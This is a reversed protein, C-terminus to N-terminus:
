LSHKEIGSIFGFIETQPTLIPLSIDNTLLLRLHNWLQKAWIWELFIHKIAEDYLHCFSCLPTKIKSFTFLM